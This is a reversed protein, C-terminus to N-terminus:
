GHLADRLPRDLDRLASTDVRPLGAHSFARRAAAVDRPRDVSLVASVEDGACWLATWGDPGAPDGRLVLEDGPRRQGVLALEHGLQTSFVYPALDELTPGTGGTGGTSGPGDPVSLLADVMTAPGRLAADWHGGPVWGHRASRRLAVDGVARVSPPAGLVAYGEDVRLSGDPELPLGSGALWATAPRAGVAALVTDAPLVRDDALRVGDARVQVVQAGTVLEVGAAAYWPETLTGAEDGLARALPVGSAEVVTVEVGAAAAVGAVEAGIWGAGIVVLRHGTRLRARLVAADAATHLTLAPEWGAPRVARAGTALVVADATFTGDETAAEVGQGTVALGHVPSALRVDDALGTVDIGLEDALLAPDPRDLLHKSLPPRDYPAVGEAGLVRVHGDFGRERLAAVTQTAALGAGVVLVARPPSSPPRSM